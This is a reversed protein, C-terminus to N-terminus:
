SNRSITFRKIGNYDLIIDIDKYYNKKLIEIVENSQDFGNEIFLLGDKKLALRSQSILLKIDNLGKGESFLANHPEYKFVNSDIHESHSEIYPPNSIVIDCIKQKISKLWDSAVIKCNNNSNKDYNKKLIDMCDLSKELLIIKWKPRERSITLGICGSGSGADIVTLKKNKNFILDGRKLIEPIILETEPRPILVNSNVYYDYGYFEQDGIVYALPMGSKLLEVLRNFENIKPKSVEYEPNTLLFTKSKKLVYLLCIKIDKENLSSNNQLYSRLLVKVTSRMNIWHRKELNKM